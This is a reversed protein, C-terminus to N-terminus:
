EIRAGSKGDTNFMESVMCKTGNRDLLQVPTVGSLAAVERTMHAQDAYGATLALGALDRPSEGGREALWLLYQLRMIRHLRKPGYGVAREFRRRIQREGIGILGALEEVRGSPRGALWAIARSVNPDDDETVALRREVAAEIARLREGLTEREAVEEWALSREQSWVDRLPVRQDRLEGASVGLLRHAAGPRLRVGVIEGGAELRSILAETAPGAIYPSRENEWIVDVCGDPLVRAMSEQLGASRRWYCVVHEQLRRVPLFEMYSTPSVESPTLDVM